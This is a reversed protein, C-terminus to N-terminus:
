EPSGRCADELKKIGTDGGDGVGGIIRTLLTAYILPRTL